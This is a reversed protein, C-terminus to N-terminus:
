DNEKGKQMREKLQEAVLLFNEYCLNWGEDFPTDCAKEYVEKLSM